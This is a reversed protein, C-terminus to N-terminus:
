GKVTPNEGSDTPKQGAHVNVSGTQRELSIRGKFSNAGAHGLAGSIIITALSIVSGMAQSCQPNHACAVVSIFAVIIVSVHHWTM